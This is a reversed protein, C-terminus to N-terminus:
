EKKRGEKVGGNREQTKTKTQQLFVLLIQSRRILIVFLIKINITVGIFDTLNQAYQLKPSALRDRAAEILTDCLALPL